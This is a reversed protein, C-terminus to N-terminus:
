NGTATNTISGGSSGHLNSAFIAGKNTLKNLRVPTDPQPIAPQIIPLDPLFIFNALPKPPFFSNGDM